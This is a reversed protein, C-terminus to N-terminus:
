ALCFMDGRWGYTRALRRGYRRAWTFPLKHTPHPEHFQIPQEVDLNQPTFQWASGQLKQISFGTSAMAHLFDSWPTEGPQNRLMPSHFLTRFVKHARQDLQFTPQIDDAVDPAVVEEQAGTERHGTGQTKTKENAVIALKDFVGTIQKTPDHLSNPIPMYLYEADQPSTTTRSAHDPEKWPPTRQLTREGSIGEVLESPMQGAQRQFEDDAAKWFADLSAEAARLTEVNTRSRRKNIPYRFKIGPKGLAVLGTDRFCTHLVSHWKSLDSIYALLLETRQEEITNKIKTAWPQFCNLQRLCETIISLQSLCSAVWASTVGKARKNNQLMHELAEVVAHIGLTHRKSPEWLYGFLTFTRHIDPHPKGLMKSLAKLKTSDLEGHLHELAFHTRAEPSWSFKTRLQQILDLQSAELFFWTKVLMDFYDQPLDQHPSLSDFHKESLQELQSIHEHVKRWISLEVYGDVAVNRLVRAWMIEDQSDDHVKTHKSRKSQHERLEFVIEAFYGPDERLLWIHDEAENTRASVLRRLRGLDLHQPVRYPDERIISGLSRYEDDGNSLPPLDRIEEKSLESLPSKMKDGVIEWVFLDLFAILSYHLSLIQIGVRPHVTDGKQISTLADAETDWEMLCGYKDTVDMSWRTSELLTPRMNVTRALEYDSLAFASPPFQTRAHFLLLMSNPRMLDELNLFPQGYIGLQASRQHACANIVREDIDPRHHLPLEPRIKLLLNKRKPATMRIWRERILAEFHRGVQVLDHWDSMIDEVYGSAHEEAHDSLRLMHQEWPLPEPLDYYDCPDAKQCGYYRHIQEYHDEIDARMLTLGGHGTGRTLAEKLIVDAESAPLSKLNEIWQQYTHLKKM